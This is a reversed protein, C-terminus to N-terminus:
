QFLFLNWALLISPVKTGIPGRSQCEPRLFDLELGGCFNNSRRMGFKLVFAWSAPQPSGGPIGERWAAYRLCCCGRWKM